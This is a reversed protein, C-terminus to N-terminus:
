YAFLSPSFDFWEPAPLEVALPFSLFVLHEQQPSGEPSCPEYNPSEATGPFPEWSSQGLEDSDAPDSSSPSAQDGPAELRRRLTSNWHNKVANAPRGTLLKAIETWKNGMRLHASIITGDEEKTWPTKCVSPALHNHWRERCQKGIRGPIEKAILCWDRAGRALVLSRLLEDEEDSWAGKVLDPNLVKQWRRICQSATKHTGLQLAIRKWDSQDALALATLREDEEATWKVSYCRKTEQSKRDKM